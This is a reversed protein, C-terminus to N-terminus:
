PLLFELGAFLRGGVREDCCTDLKGRFTFQPRVAVITIDLGLQLRVPGALRISAGPGASVAVWPRVQRARDDGDSRGTMTGAEFTACAGAELRGQRPIWCARLGAAWLWTAANIFPMTGSPVDRPLLFTQTLALSWRKARYGAAIRLLAMTPRVIGLSVGGAVQLLGWHRREAEGTPSTNTTSTTTSTPTTQPPAAEVEGPGGLLIVSTLESIAELVLNRCLGNVFTREHTGRPGKLTLALKWGGALKTIYLDATVDAGVDPSPFSGSIWGRVEDERPCLPPNSYPVTWKVQPGNVTVVTPAQAYSSGHARTPGAVSATLSAALLWPTRRSPPM